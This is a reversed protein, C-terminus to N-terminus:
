TVTLLGIFTQMENVQCLPDVKFKELFYNLFVGTNYILREVVVHLSATISHEKRKM